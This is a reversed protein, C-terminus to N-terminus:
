NVDVSPDTLALTLRGEGEATRQFQLDSIESDVDAVPTVETPLRNPDSAPKLYDDGDQGVVLYMSNGEV